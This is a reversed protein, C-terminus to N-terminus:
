LGDQRRDVTIRAYLVDIEERLRANDRAIEKTAECKECKDNSPRKKPPSESSTRREVKCPQIGRM